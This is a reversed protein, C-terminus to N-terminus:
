WTLGLARLRPFVHNGSTPCDPPLRPCCGGRPAQSLLVRLAGCPAGPPLPGLGVAHGCGSWCGCWPCSLDPLWSLLRTLVRVTWRDRSSVPSRLCPEGAPSAVHQGPLPGSGGTWAPCPDLGEHEESVPRPSGPEAREPCRSLCRGLGSKLVISTLAPAGTRATLARAQFTLTAAHTALPLDPQCAWPGM